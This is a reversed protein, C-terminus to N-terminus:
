EACKVCYMTEPMILIRGVPIDEGCAVCTGFDPSDVISLAYKLKVLRNEAQSLSAELVSKNVIADMRSIRGIATDPAVPKTNERYSTIQKETQAIEELIKEKIKNNEMNERQCNKM